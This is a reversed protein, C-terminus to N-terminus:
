VAVEVVIDLCCVMVEVVELRCVAVEVVVDLCCHKGNKTSLRESVCFLTSQM